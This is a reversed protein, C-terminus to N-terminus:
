LHKSRAKYLFKVCNFGETNHVLTFLSSVKLRDKRSELKSKRALFEFDNQSNGHFETWM